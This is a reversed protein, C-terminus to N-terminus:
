SKVGTLSEQSTQRNQLSWRWLAEAPIPLVMLWHELMALASLAALMTFATVTFGTDADVAVQALQWTLISGLLISFPFLLNMQRHRLFTLLHQLQKPLFVEGLNRVGLFLNLKASSRMVWLLLLTYLATLNEASWTVVACSAVIAIIAFEHWLIARIADWAHAIGRRPQSRQYHPGTILGTLFTIEVWSWLGLAALFSLFASLTSQTGGLAAIGVLSFVALATVGLLISRYHRAPRGILWAILGTTGWWFFVTALAPWLYENWSFGSEVGPM